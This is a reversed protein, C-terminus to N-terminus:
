FLEELKYTLEDVAFNRDVIIGEKNILIMQPIFRVGYVVAAEDDWGKFNSLEPWEIGEEKRVEKWNYKNIDLSVGVVEFGKNKYLDYLSKIESIQKISQGAWSAWFYVLVVKGKGTYDSLSVPNGDFDKGTINSFPKGADTLLYNELFKKKLVTKEGEQYEKRFLPLLRLQKEPSMFYSDYGFVSEGLQNQSNKEIFASVKSEMQDMTSKVNASWNKYEPLGFKGEASLAKKEDNLKKVKDMYFNITDKMLQYEANINGGELSSTGKKTDISIEVKGNEAAFPYPNSQPDISIYRVSVTDPAPGTFEFRGGSVKASDLPTLDATRYHEYMYVTKGEYSSSDIHGTLTYEKSGTCATMLLSAACASLLIRKM